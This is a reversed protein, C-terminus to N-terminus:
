RAKSKTASPPSSGRRPEPWRRVVNVLREVAEPDKRGPTGAQEVGSAVDVGYPGAQRLAETVNDPDLGGALVVKRERALSRVLRWDFVRGTGGLEGPVKADTLVWEGGYHRIRAVDAPSGVRFAKFAAPLLADLESPTEAGHLQLLDLGLQERLERAEEAPRNALVGILAVRGRVANAIRRALEFDVCRKSSPIFNLGIADAGCDAVVGADSPHTIGCIKIFVAM